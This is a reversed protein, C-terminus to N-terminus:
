TTEKNCAALLESFAAPSLRKLIEVGTDSAAHPRAGLSKLIKFEDTKEFAEREKTLRANNERNFIMSKAGDFMLAAIAAYDFDNKKAAFRKTDGYPGVHIRWMGTPAGGYDRSRDQRIEVPVREGIMCFSLRYDEVYSAAPDLKRLEKLISSRIGEETLNL